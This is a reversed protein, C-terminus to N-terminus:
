PRVAPPAQKNLGILRMLENLESDEKAILRAFQPAPLFAPRVGLRESATVFASDEVTRQIAQQLIDIVSQPTGKPVAVGRWAELSANVGQEVATPVAPLMPDRQSTIVALARFQGSAIYTTLAAPLQLLADVHGGILSPVVQAAAFPVDIVQVGAAHFLLV